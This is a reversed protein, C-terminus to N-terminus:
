QKDKAKVNIKYVINVLGIIVVIVVVILLLYQWNSAIKSLDGISMDAALYKGPIQTM